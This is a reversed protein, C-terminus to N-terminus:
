ILRIEFKDKNHRIFKKKTKIEKTKMKEPVINNCIPTDLKFM